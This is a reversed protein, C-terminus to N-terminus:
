KETPRKMHSDFNNIYDELNKELMNSYEKVFYAMMKEKGAKMEEASSFGRASIWANFRALSYMFSASVVGPEAVPTIQENALFIHADARAYFAKDVHNM